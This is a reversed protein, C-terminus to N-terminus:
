NGARYAASVAVAAGTPRDRSHQHRRPNADDSVRTRRLKPNLFDNLADGLTNAAVVTLVIALGPFLSLWWGRALFQQANNLMQGWSVLTPDGLGFFDLGAETLIAQGVVFSSAVIAPPSANPLIHRLIVRRDSAGLCLAAETFEVRKLSLFGVRVLRAIGPWSALGLILIVKVHGPGTLTVVVLALFFVPFMQFFEAVRILVLDAWGGFYGSLAGIAFGIASAVLAAFFGVMLTPQAGYILRSLVDRGINDTGLPHLATPASLADQSLDFPDYPAILPAFVSAFVLLLLYAVALRLGWSM